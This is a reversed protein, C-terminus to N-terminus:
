SCKLLILEELGQVCSVKGSIQTTKVKKWWTKYNESCLDKVKKTLNTGYKIVTAITFPIM